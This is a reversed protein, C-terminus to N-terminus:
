VRHNNLMRKTHQNLIHNIAVLKITSRTPPLYDGDRPATFAAMALLTARASLWLLFGKIFLLPTNQM